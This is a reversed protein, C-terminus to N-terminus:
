ILQGRSGTEGPAARRIGFLFHAIAVVLPYVLITAVMESLTLVLPPRPSAVVFLAMRNALTIMLVGGAITGWEVLFPMNRFESHRRRLAETLIVVLAAWLGPPRMFLLDALLFVAAIVYVSLYAPKRAVWVLTIALLLDPGAWTAPRLDLPVLDAVVLVFALLVFLGRNAWTKGDAREAM